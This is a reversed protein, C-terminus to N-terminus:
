TLSLPSLRSHSHTPSLPSLALHALHAIHALPSLTLPSHPSLPSLPSLPSHSGEGPATKKKKKKWIGHELRHSVSVTLYLQICSSVTVICSSIHVSVPYLQICHSVAPYLPDAAFNSSTPNDAGQFESQRRFSIIILTTALKYSCAMATTPIGDKTFKKQQKRRATYFSWCTVRACSVGVSFVGGVGACVRARCSFFGFSCRGCPIRNRKKYCVLCLLDRGCGKYVDKRNRVDDSLIACHLCELIM